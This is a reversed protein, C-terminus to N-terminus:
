PTVRAEYAAARAQLLAFRADSIHLSAATYGPTTWYVGGCPYRTPAQCPAYRAVVPRPIPVVPAVDVVVPPAVVVPPVVPPWPGAPPGAPPRVEVVPAMADFEEVVIVVHVAPLAVAPAVFRTVVKVTRSNEPVWAVPEIRYREVTVGLGRDQDELALGTANQPAEFLSYGQPAVLDSVEDDGSILVDIFQGVTVGSVPVVEISRVYFPREIRPSTRVETGAAGGAVNGTLHFSLVRPQGMGMPEGGGPPCGCPGPGPAGGPPEGGPPVPVPSPSPEPVPAPEPEPAVPPNGPPGGPTDPPLPSSGRAFDAFVGVVKGKSLEGAECGLEVRPAPLRGPIGPACQWRRLQVLTLSGALSLRPNMNCNLVDRVAGTARRAVERLGLLRGRQDGSKM